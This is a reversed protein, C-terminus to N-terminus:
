IIRHGEIMLGRDKVLQLWDERYGIPSSQGLLGMAEEQETLKKFKSYLPHGTTVFADKRHLIPPNISNSYDRYRIRFSQLPVILSGALSPHPNEDFEPYALYSIQPKQRHLKVLNAGAVTGIYARACGEYVRLIPTLCHIASIHVYLASPTQKGIASDQCASNVLKMNGASFLLADALACSRKYSSFFARVDLRLEKPLGSFRPRGGFRSLALYVLLDQTREDRIEDWKGRGTITRIIHFAKKTSGFAAKIDDAVAVETDDPLRGRQAVFAMLPELIDAHKEYLIDSRRIRPAASRRRYRSAIYSQRQDDSRFVYFVGPGSPVCSTGLISDIWERLERQDYYKQFTSLKTIVGDEYDQNNSTEKSEYCLRASVVLINKSLDWASRLVSSREESDEIVNVVYGLNVVDSKIKKEEPRFAPDWGKCEIGRESLLRIDDGKGCGYDFVSTEKNILGDELALHIPRSLDIRKIATRQRNIKRATM